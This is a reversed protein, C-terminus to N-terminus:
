STSRTADDGYVLAHALGNGKRIQELDQPSPSRAPRTRRSSATTCSRTRSARAAACTSRSTACTARPDRRAAGHREAHERPHRRHSRRGDQRLVDPARLRRQARHRRTIDHISGVRARRLGRTFQPDSFAGTAEQPEFPRENAKQVIDDVKAVYTSSTSRSKPRSPRAKPSSRRAPARRPTSSSWRTASSVRTSSARSPTTAFSRRRRRTTSRSASANSRRAVIEIQRLHAPGEPRGDYKSRRSRASTSGGMRVPSGPSLGGVNPLRASYSVEAGLVQANDGILFVGLLWHDLPRWAVFIGVRKEKTM